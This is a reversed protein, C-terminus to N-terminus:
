PQYEHEDNTSGRRIEQRRALGGQENFDCLDQLETGAAVDFARFNFFDAQEAAAEKLQKQWREAADTGPQDSHPFIRVSKSAFHSLTDPAIDCSSTLMAVPAIKGVM